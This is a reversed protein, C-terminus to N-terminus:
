FDRLIRASRAQGLHLGAPADHLACALYSHIVWVEQLCFDWLIRALQAQGLHLGSPTEHLTRALYHHIACRCASIGLHLGEQSFKQPGASTERLTEALHYPHCVDGALLFGSTCGKKSFIKIDLLLRLSHGLWTPLPVMCLTCQVSVNGTCPKSRNTKQLIIQFVTIWLHKILTGRMQEPKDSGGNWTTPGKVFSPKFHFSMKAQAPWTLWADKLGQGLAAVWNQSSLLVWTVMMRLKDQPRGSHPNLVPLFGALVTDEPLQM